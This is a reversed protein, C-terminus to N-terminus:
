LEHYKWTLGNDRSTKLFIKSWGKKPEDFWFVHILGSSSKVLMPNHYKGTKSSLNKKELLINGELDSQCYYIISKGGLFSAWTLHFYNDSDFVVVPRKPSRRELPFLNKGDIPYQDKKFDLKSFFIEGLVYNRKDLWFLYSFAGKSLIAPNDIEDQTEKAVIAKVLVQEDEWTIGADSSKRRVITSLVHKGSQGSKFIPLGKIWNRFGRLERVDTWAVSVEDNHVSIAPPYCYCSHKGLEALIIEKKWTLGRDYSTKFYTRNEVDQWVLFVYEDRCMLLPYRASNADEMLIKYDEWTNGGDISRCYYLEGDITVGYDIWATHVIGANVEISPPYPFSKAISLCHDTSWSIGGDISRRFYISSSDNEGWLWL